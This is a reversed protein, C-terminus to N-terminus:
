RRLFDGAVSALPSNTMQLRDLDLRDHRLVHMTGAELDLFTRGIWQWGRAALTPVLRTPVAMFSQAAGALYASRYAQLLLPVILAQAGGDSRVAFRSMVITANPDGPTALELLLGLHPDDAADAARTLRITGVAEGCCEAVLIMSRHDVPEILAPSGHDAAGPAVIGECSLAFRLRGIQSLDAASRVVHIAPDTSQKSPEPWGALALDADTTRAHAVSPSRSVFDSAQM